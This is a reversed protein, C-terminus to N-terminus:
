DPHGADGENPGVVTWIRPSDNFAHTVRVQVWHRRSGIDCYSMKAWTAINREGNSYAASEQEDMADLHSNFSIDEDNPFPVVYLGVWAGAPSSLPCKISVLGTEDLM